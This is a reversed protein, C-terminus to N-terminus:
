GVIIGAAKDSLKRFAAADEPDLMNIFTKRAEEYEIKRERVRAELKKLEQIRRERNEIERESPKLNDIIAKSAEYERQILSVLIAEKGPSLRAHATRNRVVGAVGDGKLIVNEGEAAEGRGTGSGEGVGGRAHVGANAATGVGASQIEVEM